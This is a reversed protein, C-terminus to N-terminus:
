PFCTGVELLDLKDSQRAAASPLLLITVYTEYRYAQPYQPISPSGM